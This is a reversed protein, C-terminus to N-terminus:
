PSLIAEHATVANDKSSSTYEAFLTNSFDNGRVAERGSPVEADGLDTFPSPCGSSIDDSSETEM